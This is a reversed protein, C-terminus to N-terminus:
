IKAKKNNAKCNVDDTLLSNYTLHRLEILLDPNQAKLKNELEKDIKFDKWFLPKNEISKFISYLTLSDFYNHKIM